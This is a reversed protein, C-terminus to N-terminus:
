RQDSEKSASSDDVHDLASKQKEDHVATGAAIADHKALVNQLDDNM